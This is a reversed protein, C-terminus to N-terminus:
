GILMKELLPSSEALCNIVRDYFSNNEDDKILDSETNLIILSDLLKQGLLSRLRTKIRKLASFRRECTVQTFSITLIVCYAVYLTTYTSIHMNYQSLLKCACPICSECVDLGCRSFCMADKAAQDLDLVDEDNEEDSQSDSDQKHQRPSIHEDWLTKSLESFKNAFYELEKSLLERDVNAISAISKLADNLIGNEKIKKFNKPDLCAADKMLDENCM